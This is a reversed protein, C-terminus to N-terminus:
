THEEGLVHAIEHTHTHRGKATPSPPLYGTATYGGINACGKEGAQLFAGYYLNRCGAWELCNDLIKLGYLWKYATCTNPNAEVIPWRASSGSWAVHSVPFASLLRQALDARRVPSAQVLAFGD